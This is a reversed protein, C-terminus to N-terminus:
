NTFLSKKTIYDEGKYKWEIKINWKGSVLQEKPITMLHDNLEIIKDFDLNKNSLRKFYATGEIEKENFGSPFSITLGSTSNSIKVNEELNLAKTEKDIEEQYHLEDKYYDESVLHHDYQESFSIRYVFQLIFTMFLLMAVVIGTGWNWKIRM